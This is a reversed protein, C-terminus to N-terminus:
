TYLPLLFSDIRKIKKNFCSINPDTILELRPAYLVMTIIASTNSNKMLKVFLSNKMISLVKKQM